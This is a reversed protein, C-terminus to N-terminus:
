NRALAKSIEDALDGELFNHWAVKGDRGFVIKTPLVKVDLAELTTVAGYGTPWPVNAEALAAKTQALADDGEATLGIFAVDQDRFRGYAKVVKPMDERCPGCWHAWCDIVVVKGALEAVTPPAGEVNLWGDAELAPLPQGVALPAMGTMDSSRSCGALMLLFGLIFGMPSRLVAM